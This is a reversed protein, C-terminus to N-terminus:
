AGLQYGKALAALVSDVNSQITADSVANIQAVTADKNAALVLGLVDDALRDPARAIQQAFAIIEDSPAPSATLQEEAAVLLAMYVRNRLTSDNALNRLESYTAM